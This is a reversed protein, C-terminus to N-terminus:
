WHLVDFVHVAERWGKMDDKHSISPLCCQSIHFVIPWRVYLDSFVSKRGLVRRIKAPTTALNNESRTADVQLSIVVDRLFQINGARGLYLAFQLTVFWSPVCTETGTVTTGSCKGTPRAAQCRFRMIMLSFKLKLNSPGVSKTSDRIANNNQKSIKSVPLTCKTWCSLPAVRFSPFM